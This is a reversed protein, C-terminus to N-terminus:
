SNGLSALNQADSQQQARVDADLEIVLRSSYLSDLPDGLAGDAIRRAIDRYMLAYAGLKSFKVRRVLSNGRESRYWRSDDIHVSADGARLEVYDRVGLRPSGFDTLLMSFVAGNELELLVHIDGSRTLTADRRLAPCYGNLFLFHDIWHCGNSLLRTGSNPWNYWHHKPVRLEQVVAYYSIPDGDGVRLDTRALENFPAYRKHFCAFLRCSGALLAELEDFQKATTAIPKEVVAYKGRSLAYSAIPAHTHHYGAAFFVDFDADDSPWPSSDLSLRQKDAIGLQTPEIEHIEDIDIWKRVNPMLITKAYHGLGFLVGKPKQKSSDGSMKKSAVQTRVASGAPFYRLQERFFERGSCESYLDRLLAQLPVEDLEHGSYSSACPYILEGQVPSSGILDVFAVERPRVVSPLDVPCTFAEPLVVREVLKPHSPAIFAVTSDDSIHELKPQGDGAIVGLGFAYYRDNRNREAFRSQIKRYVYRPGVSDLYNLLTRVSRPKTIFQDELRSLIAWWLVHVRVHDSPLYYDLYGDRWTSTLIYM